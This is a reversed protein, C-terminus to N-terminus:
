LNNFTVLLMEITTSIFMIFLFLKLLKWNILFYAHNSPMIFLVSRHAQLRASPCAPPPFPLWHDHLAIFLYSRGPSRWTPPCTDYSCVHICLLVSPHISQAHISPHVPSASLNIDIVTGMSSFDRDALTKPTIIALFNINLWCTPLTTAFDSQIQPIILFVNMYRSLSPTLKEEFGKYKRM